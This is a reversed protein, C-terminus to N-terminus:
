TKPEPEKDEEAYIKRFRDREEDTLVDDLADCSDDLLYMVTKLAWDRDEENMKRVGM